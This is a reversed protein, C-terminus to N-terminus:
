EAKYETHYKRTVIRLLKGSEYPRENKAQESWEVIQQALQDINTWSGHDTVDPMAKRNAETDLMSPMIGWVSADALPAGSVNANAGLSRVLHHVAAKAVGYSIMSPTPATAAAAGPLILLGGTVMFKAALHAAHLASQVSAQWM